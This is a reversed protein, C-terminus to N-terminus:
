PLFSSPWPAKGTGKEPSNDNAPNSFMSVSSNNALAPLRLFDDLEDAIILVDGKQHETRGDVGFPRSRQTANMRAAPRM